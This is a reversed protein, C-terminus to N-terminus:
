QNYTVCQFLISSLIEQRIAIKGHIRAALSKWYKSGMNIITLIVFKGQSVIQRQFGECSPSSTSQWTVKKRSGIQMFPGVAYDIVCAM